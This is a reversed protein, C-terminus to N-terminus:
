SKHQNTTVFVTFHFSNLINQKQKKLKTQSFRLNLLNQKCTLANYLPTNKIYFISM